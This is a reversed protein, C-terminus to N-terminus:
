QTQPIHHQALISGVAEISTGNNDIVWVGALFRTWFKSEFDGPVPKPDWMKYTYYMARDAFEKGRKQRIDWLAGMWKHGQWESRDLNRNALSSAFYVEFLAAAIQDKEPDPVANLNGLTGFMTRFVYSAYVMRIADTDDLSDKPLYIQRQYITGPFIGGMMQVNYPSVGIPPLENEVPFGVSKLYLYFSNIGDTIRRKRGPTLLPSDKFILSVDPPTIHATNIITTTTAGGSSKPFIKSVEVAIDAATAPKAPPQPKPVIRWGGWLAVGILASAFVIGLMRIIRRTGGFPPERIVAVLLIVWAVIFVSALSVSQVVAGALLGIAGWTLPSDIYRWLKAIRPSTEGSSTPTQSTLSRWIPM